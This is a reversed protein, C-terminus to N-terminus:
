VIASRPPCASTKIQCDKPVRFDNPKTAVHVAVIGASLRRFRVDSFGQSELEKALLEATPFGRIGDLLYRYASSDGGTALRGLAPMCVSMYFLYARNVVAIPINSSELVILRGGPRLVRLAEELAKARDCIKLGLSITYADVSESPISPMAEMDLVDFRVQDRHTVLRRSAMALMQRSLDSAIVSRQGQPSRSLVRLMIDGTGTAGDLLVNWPQDSIERAVARKWLRHIGFSFLDCLLDYRSAIRGFVDDRSPSFAAANPTNASTPSSV